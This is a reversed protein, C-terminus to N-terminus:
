RNDVTVRIRNVTSRGTFGLAAVCILDRPGNPVLTSDWTTSYPPSRITAVITTDLSVQQPTGERFAVGFYCSAPYSEPM